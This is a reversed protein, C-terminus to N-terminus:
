KQDLSQIYTLLGIMFCPLLVDQITHKKFIIKLITNKCFTLEAITLKRSLVINCTDITIKTEFKEHLNTIEDLFRAVFLREQQIKKFIIKLITKRHFVFLNLLVDFFEFYHVRYLNKTKELKTTLNTYNLFM